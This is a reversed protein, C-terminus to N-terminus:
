RCAPLPFKVEWVDIDNVWFPGTFEPETVGFRELVKLLISWDYPDVTTEAYVRLLRESELVIVHMTGNPLVFDGPVVTQVEGM